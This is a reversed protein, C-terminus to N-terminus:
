IFFRKGHQARSSWRYIKLSLDGYPEIRTAFGSEFGARVLEAGREIATGFFNRQSPAEAGLGPELDRPTTRGELITGRDQEVPVKTQSSDTFFFNLLAELAEDDTERATPSLLGRKSLRAVVATRTANATAASLSPCPTVVRVSSSFVGNASSGTEELLRIRSGTQRIQPM